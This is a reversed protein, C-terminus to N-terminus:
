WSQWAAVCTMEGWTANTGSIWRLLGILRRISNLQRYGLNEVFAVAFMCLTHFSKPYIHFSLEELLLAGVSVVMGLGVDAPLFATLAEISIWNFAFGVIIAFYGIVVIVPSLCEFLIAFPCALWGVTGGRPPFLPERNLSLSECLGRQWRIRQKRIMNLDEPAEDVVRLNPYHQSHYVGCIMKIPIRMQYVEPFRTLSFESMLVDLM